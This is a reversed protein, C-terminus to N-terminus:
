VFGSTVGLGRMFYWKILMEAGLVWCLTRMIGEAVMGRIARSSDFSYAIYHPAKPLGRWSQLCRNTLPAKELALGAM